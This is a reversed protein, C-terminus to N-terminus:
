AGPRPNDGARAEAETCAFLGYRMAGTQYALWMRPLTWAFIAGTQYALWMRPLTWAFIRNRSSRSRLLQRYRSDTAIRAALRRICISWTRKVRSSLDEFERLVLGEAELLRRYEAVTGIGPLRGERCIPELLRLQEWDRVRDGALWTTFVFAGGRRLVRRVRRFCARKDAMHEVSEIAIVSDFSRPEFDVQLWDGLVYRADSGVDVAV